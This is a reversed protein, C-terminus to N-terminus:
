KKIKAWVGDLFITYIQNGESIILRKEFSDYEIFYGEKVGRSILEGTHSGQIYRFRVGPGFGRKEAEAILRAGVEENKIQICQSIDSKHIGIEDSWKGLTGFGLSKCNGFEGKFMFMLKDYGELGYWDGVVLGGSSEQATLTLLEKKLIRIQFNIEEVRSM